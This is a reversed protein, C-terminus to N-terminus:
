DRYIFKYMAAKQDAPVKALSAILWGNNAGGGRNFERVEFYWNNVQFFHFKTGAVGGFTMAGRKIEHMFLTLQDPQHAKPTYEELNQADAFVKELNMFGLEHSMPHIFKTGPAAVKTFNDKFPKFNIRALVWKYGANDKELDFFLTIDEEKGQYNVKAAVEAFWQGGYYDIFIPKARNTVEALFEARTSSNIGAGQNDFLVSLYKKRMESERYFRSTPEYTKGTVPDEENNFRKFFQNMQKTAARLDAVDNLTGGITQALLPAQGWGLAIIVFFLFRM